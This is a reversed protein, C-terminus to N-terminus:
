PEVVERGERTDYIRFEPLPGVGPTARAAQKTLRRRRGFLPEPQNAGNGVKVWLDGDKRQLMFRAPFIQRDDAM